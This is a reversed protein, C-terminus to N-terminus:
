KKIAVFKPSLVLNGNKDVYANDLELFYDGQPIAESPNKLFRKFQLVFGNPQVLGMTQMSFAKGSSKGTGNFVSDAPVVVKSQTM